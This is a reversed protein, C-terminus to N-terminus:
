ATQWSHSRRDKYKVSHKEGDTTYYAIAPFIHPRYGCMKRQGIVRLAHHIQVREAHVPIPRRESAGYIGARRFFTKIPKTRYRWRHSRFRPKGFRSAGYCACRAAGVPAHKGHLPFSGFPFLNIRKAQVFLVPLVGSTQPGRSEPFPEFRRDIRHKPYSSRSEDPLRSHALWVIECLISPLSKFRQSSWAYCLRIYPKTRVRLPNKQHCYTIVSQSLSAIPSHSHTAKKSLVFKKSSHM